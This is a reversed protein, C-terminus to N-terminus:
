GPFDSLFDEREIGSPKHFRTASMRRRSTEKEAEILLGLSQSARQSKNLYRAESAKGTKILRRVQNRLPDDEWDAVQRM